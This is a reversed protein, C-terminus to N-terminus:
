FNTRCVFHFSKENNKLEDRKHLMVLLSGHQTTLKQKKKKKNSIENMWDNM